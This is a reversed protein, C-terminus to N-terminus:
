REAREVIHLSGRLGESVGHRCAGQLCEIYERRLREV